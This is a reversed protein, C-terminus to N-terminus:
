LVRAALNEGRGTIPKKGLPSRPYAVHRPRGVLMHRTLPKRTLHLCSLIAPAAAWDPL